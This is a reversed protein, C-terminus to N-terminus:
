PGGRSSRTALAQGIREITPPHTGLVIEQWRPPDPDSVNQITIRREFAVM